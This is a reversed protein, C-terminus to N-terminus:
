QRRGAQDASRHRSRLGLGGGRRHRSQPIGPRVPGQQLAVVKQHPTTANETFKRAASKIADPIRQLRPCPSGSIPTGALDLSGATPPVIVKPGTSTATPWGPSSSPSANGGSYRFGDRLTSGDASEFTVGTLNGSALCTSARTDDITVDITAPQGNAPDDIGTASGSLRAAPPRPTSSVGNYDDM